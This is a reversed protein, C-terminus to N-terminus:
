DFQVKLLNEINDLSKLVSERKEAHFLFYGYSEGSGRRKKLFDGKEFKIKYKVLNPDKIIEELGEISQVKGEGPHLIWVSSFGKPSTQVQPKQGIMTDYYAQWPDFGYSKQILKMLFGGPPRIAIEGFLIQNPQLFCEIHAMGSQVKFAKLVKKNFELIREQDASSFLGPAINSVHHKHYTTINTFIIEGEFVFSEISLEEGTINQEILFDPQWYQILDEKNHATRQDRSGSSIVKKMYIPYTFKSDIEDPSSDDSLVYETIPIHNQTCHDKMISKDIFRELFRSEENRGIKRLLLSKQLVGKETTPIFISMNDLYKEAQQELTDFPVYQFKTHASARANLDIVTFNKFARQAKKLAEPRYGCLFVPTPNM